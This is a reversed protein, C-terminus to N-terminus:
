ASVEGAQTAVSLTGDEAKVVEGSEVLAKVERSVTGKNIGTILAVDAGTKAGAGIAAAVKERNTAPTSAPAEAAPAAPPALLFDGGDKVLRLAPRPAPVEAEVGGRQWIATSPLAIVADDDMYRVKIPNPSRKGDRVMAVGPMPLEDAKWGKDQASEGFVVRAETPSEVSLGIRYGLQKAIQRPVGDGYTPSQTMWWLDICAARGMRAISDLGELANLKETIEAGKETYGTVIEVKTCSSMVEAGEDVVVTIRPREVTPVLTAQGKPLVDLRETMEDVLEQVLEVVQEPTYAVRARHDWLRGEVKKLDIIVLVNTEGESADFLMPRSATSKGSGSMGAVLVRQGLPVFVEDGTIMDVGFADGPQWVIVGDPAASRTRLRIVAWGGRAGPAILMPLETRAGLLARVRDAADRLAKVTWKGDLRVDCEIGASTISPVTSVTGSLGREDAHQVWYSPDLREVLQREEFSLDDSVQAVVKRRGLWLAAVNVAVLSASVSAPWVTWDQETSLAYSAVAAPISHATHVRVALNKLTRPYNAKAEKLDDKAAARHARAAKDATRAASRGAGFPNKSEKRAIRRQAAAQRATSRASNHERQAALLKKLNEPTRMKNRRGAEEDWRAAFPAFPPALADLTNSVTETSTKWGSKTPEAM